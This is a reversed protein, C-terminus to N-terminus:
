MGFRPNVANNFISGFKFSLGIGGYYQYGTALQRQRAIIEEPTAGGAPLYLQDRIVEYGGWAEFSLGRVIRVEVNARTELNLKSTDFFYQKFESQVEIEGWPQQVTYEAELLHVLRTERIRGFITTDTYRTLEVGPGWRVLLLRRTSERYPFVSYEVAAVNITRFDLNRYTESRNDTYVAGSWHQGFGRVFLGEAGYFERTSTFTTTDDITYRTRSNSASLDIAVRSRETVRNVEISAGLSRSRYSEEGDMWGNVGLEFVWFNWPDRPQARGGGATTPATYRIEIREAVPTGAVYRVLGLRLTRAIARREEDSTATGPTSVSLTDGRGAFERLGLFALTYENGGSGTRRRTVLVHLQAVQRDNVWDVFTIETRIFDGDCVDCDLFVRLSPPADAQPAPNQVATVTLLAAVAVALM